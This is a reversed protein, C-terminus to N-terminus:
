ACQRSISASLRPFPHLPIIVFKQSRIQFKLWRCIDRIQHRCGAAMACRFAFNRPHRVHLDLCDSLSMGRNAVPDPIVDFRGRMTKPMGPMSLHKRFSNATIKARVRRKEASHGIGPLLRRFFSKAILDVWQLVFFSAPIATSLNHVAEPRHRM